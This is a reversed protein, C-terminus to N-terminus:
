YNLEPGLAELGVQNKGPRSTLQVWQRLLWNTAMVQEFKVEPQAM